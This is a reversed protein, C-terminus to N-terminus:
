RLSRRRLGGTARSAPRNSAHPMQGHHDSGSSIDASRDPNNLAEPPIHRHHDSGSSLDASRSAPQPAAKM